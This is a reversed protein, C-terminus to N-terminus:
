RRRKATRKNKIEPNLFAKIVKRNTWFIVFQLFILCYIGAKLGSDYGHLVGMSVGFVVALIGYYFEQLLLFSTLAKM